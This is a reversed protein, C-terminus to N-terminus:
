DTPGVISLAALIASKPVRCKIRPREGLYLDGALGGHEFRAVVADTVSRKETSDLGGVVLESGIQSARTTEPPTVERGRVSLVLAGLDKGSGVIAADFLSM